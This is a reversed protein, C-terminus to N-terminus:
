LNLHVIAPDAHCGDDKIDVWDTQAKVSDGSMALVRARGFGEPFCAGGGGGVGVKSLTDRHTTGHYTREQVYEYQPPLEFNGNNAVCFNIRLETTCAHQAEKLVCGSFAMALFLPALRFEPRM